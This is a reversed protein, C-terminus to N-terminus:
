VHARGIEIFVANQPSGAGIKARIYHEGLPTRGTNEECGVGYMSTSIPWSNVCQCAEFLGMRQENISVILQQPQENLM